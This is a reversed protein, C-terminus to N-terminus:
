TKWARWVKQWICPVTKAHGRNWMIQLKGSKQMRPAENDYRQISHWVPTMSKPRKHEMTSNQAREAKVRHALILVHESTVDEINGLTVVERLIEDIMGEDNLGGIFQETLLRDYQKYECEAAKTWLRGDM